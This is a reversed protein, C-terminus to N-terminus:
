HVFYATKQIIHFYFYSLETTLQYTGMYLQKLFM